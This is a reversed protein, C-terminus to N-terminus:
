GRGEKIADTALKDAKENGYIGNHAKVKILRLDSFRNCLSRIDNVLEKNASAKWGKSLLGHVYSSDTYLRVPLDKKRIAELAEKVATLEAVNNTAPGLYRSIERERSGYRLYIGIGAPGPNGSSAGDTYVHVAKKGSDRTEEPSREPQPSGRGAATKESRPGPAPERGSGERGLEKINEPRVWYEHPQDLQYKILAKGKDEVYRGERDLAAWVKRGKFSRREWSHICGAARKAKKRGNESM